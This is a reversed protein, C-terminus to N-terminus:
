KTSKAPRLHHHVFNIPSVIGWVYFGVSSAGAVLATVGFPEPNYPPTSDSLAGLVAVVFSSLFVVLSGYFGVAIWPGHPDGIAMSGFGPALMNGMVGIGIVTDPKQKQLPTLAYPTLAEATAPLPHAIGYLSNAYLYNALRGGTPAASGTTTLAAIGFVVLFLRKM